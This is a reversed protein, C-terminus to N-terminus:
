DDCSHAVNPSALRVRREIQMDGSAGLWNVVSCLTLSELGVNEPRAVRWHDSETSSIVGLLSPGHNGRFTRIQARLCRAAGKSLMDTASSHAPIDHAGPANRIQGSGVGVAIANV